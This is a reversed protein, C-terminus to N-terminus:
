EKPPVPVEPPEEYFRVVIRGEEATIDSYKFNRRTIDKGHTWLKLWALHKIAEDFNGIKKLAGDVVHYVIGGLLDSVELHVAVRKDESVIKGM